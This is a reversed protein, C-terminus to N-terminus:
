STRPRVEAQLWRADEEPLPPELPRSYDLLSDYGAEEYRRSFLAELDVVADPDEGALPIPIVPLSQRLTFPWVDALPRRAARSVVVFYDGPPLPRAMPLREGGRLLDIEVRHAASPLITDRKSLYERRGDSGPRKNGPSLVEVVTVLERSDRLRIEFFRDRVREPMLLPVTVPVTAVAATVSGAPEARPEEATGTTDPRMFRAPEGPAHEIYGREEMLVTYRPRLLSM